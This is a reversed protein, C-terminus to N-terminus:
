LRGDRKYGIFYRRNFPSIIQCQARDRSLVINGLNTSQYPDWKVLGRPVITNMYLMVSASSLDRLIYRKYTKAPSSYM